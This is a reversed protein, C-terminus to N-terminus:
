KILRSWAHLIGSVLNDAFNIQWNAMYMCKKGWVEQHYHSVIAHFSNGKDITNNASLTINLNCLTSLDRDCRLHRGAYARIILVGYIVQPSDRISQIQSLCALQIIRLFALMDLLVRYSNNEFYM